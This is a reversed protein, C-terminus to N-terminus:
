FEDAQELNSSVYLREIRVKENCAYLVFRSEASTTARLIASNSLALSFKDIFKRLHPVRLIKRVKDSVEVVEQWYWIFVHSAFLRETVLYKGTERM